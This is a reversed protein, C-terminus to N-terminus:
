AEENGGEEQIHALVDAPDLAAQWGLARWGKEDTHDAVGFAGNIFRRLATRDKMNQVLRGVQAHATHSKEIEGCHAKWWHCSDRWEVVAAKAEDRETELRSIKALAATLEELRGQEARTEVLEALELLMYQWRAQNCDQGWSPHQRHIWHRMRESLKEPM